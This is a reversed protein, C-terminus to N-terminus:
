MCASLVCVSEYMRKCERVREWVKEREKNICLDRVPCKRVYQHCMCLLVNIYLVIVCVCEKERRREHERARVKVTCACTERLANVYMSIDCVSCPM